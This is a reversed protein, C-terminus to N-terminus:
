GSRVSHRTSTWKRSIMSKTFKMVRLINEEQQGSVKLRTRVGEFDHWLRVEHNSTMCVLVVLTCVGNVVLTTCERSYSIEQFASTDIEIV